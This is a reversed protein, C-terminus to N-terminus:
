VGLVLLRLIAVVDAAYISAYKSYSYAYVARISEFANIRNYRLTIIYEPM